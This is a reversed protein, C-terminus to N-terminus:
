PLVEWTGKKTSGTRRLRGSRKLQELHYKIGDTTIGVALALDQRTLFPNRKLLALLQEQTTAAAREGTDRANARTTPRTEQTTEQTTARQAMEAAAESRAAAFHDASARLDLTIGSADAEIRPPPIGHANSLLTHFPQSRHKGVPRHLTAKM